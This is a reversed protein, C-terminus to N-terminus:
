VRLKEMSPSAIPFILPAYNGAGIRPAIAFIGTREVKASAIDRLLILWDKEWEEPIREEVESRAIWYRPQIFYYPDVYNKTTQFPLGRGGKGKASGVLDYSGFRHDFHWIFKGEYLPVYRRSKLKLSIQTVQWILYGSPYFFRM